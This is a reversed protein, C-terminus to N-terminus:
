KKFRNLFVSKLKSARGFFRVRIFYLYKFCRAIVIYISINSINREKDSIMSVVDVKMNYYCSIFFGVNETTSKKIFNDEM